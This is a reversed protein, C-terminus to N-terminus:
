RVFPCLSDQAAAFEQGYPTKPAKTVKIRRFRANRQGDENNWCDWVINKSLPAVFMQPIESKFAHTPRQAGALKYLCKGIKRDYVWLRRSDNREKVTGTSIEEGGSCVNCPLSFESM